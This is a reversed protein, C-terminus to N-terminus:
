KAVLKTMRSTWNRCTVCQYDSFVVVTVRPAPGGVRHGASALAEWNRVVELPETPPERHRRSLNAFSTAAAGGVLVVALLVQLVKVKERAM